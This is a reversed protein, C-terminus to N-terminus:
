FALTKGPLSQNGQLGGSHIVLLRSKKPFFDKKVLDSVAFFLKATYVFDTPIGTTAYWENMFGILEATKKAYGGFHYDTVIRVRGASDKTLEEPWWEELGKLVAIGLLEKGPLLGGALGTLLTGTGVACIVHTYQEIAVLQLIEASGQIGKAGAGGAPIICPDGFEKQWQEIFAPNNKQNYQDRSVFRLQMGWAAAAVLTPSLTAPKEGRIIGISDLGAKHAACAVAIIHNSYAGGFSLISQQKRQLAAELYYKLKFWKNGSIIPDIKDLRLVAATIQQDRAFAFEVPDTSAASLNVINEPLLHM